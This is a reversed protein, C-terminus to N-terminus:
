TQTPHKVLEWHEPAVGMHVLPVHVAQVDLVWHLLPRKHMLPEQTAKEPQVDLECHLPTSGNQLRLVFEQTSHRLLPFQSSAKKGTQM